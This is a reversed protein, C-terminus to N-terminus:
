QQQGDIVEANNFSTAVNEASEAYKQKFKALAGALADEGVLLKQFITHVVGLVKDFCARVADGQGHGLFATSADLKNAVGSLRTKINGEVTELSGAVKEVEGENLYRNGSGDVAQIADVSLVLNVDDIAPLQPKGAEGAGTAEAWAAGTAEVNNKFEEFIGKIAEGCKAVGEDAFKQFFEQAEEAYWCTSIPTIVGNALEEVIGEATEQAASNIADRLAEVQAKNYGSMEGTSGGGFLGM